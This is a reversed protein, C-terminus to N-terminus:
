SESWLWHMSPTLLQVGAERAEAGLLGEWDGAAGGVAVKHIRWRAGSQRATKAGTTRHASIGGSLWM